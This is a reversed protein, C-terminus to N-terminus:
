SVWRLCCTAPMERVISLCMKFCSHSFLWPVATERFPQL